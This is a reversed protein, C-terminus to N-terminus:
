DQEDYRWSRVMLLDDEWDMSKLEHVAQAIARDDPDDCEDYPNETVSVKFIRRVEMTYIRVKLQRREGGNLMRESPSYPESQM